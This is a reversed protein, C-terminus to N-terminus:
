WQPSKIHVLWVLPHPDEHILENTGCITDEHIYAEISEWTFCEPINCVHCTQIVCM